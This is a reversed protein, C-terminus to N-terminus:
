GGFFGRSKRSFHSSPIAYKLTENETLITDRLVMSPALSTRQHHDSRHYAWISFGDRVSFGRLRSQWKSNLRGTRFLIAGSFRWKSQIMSDYPLKLKDSAAISRLHFEETRWNESPARLDRNPILTFLIFFQRNSDNRNSDNRNSDNHIKRRAVWRYQIHKEEWFKDM